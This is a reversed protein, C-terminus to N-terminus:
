GVRPEQYICIGLSPFRLLRIEFRPPAQSNGDKALEGSRNQRNVPNLFRQGATRSFWPVSAGRSSSALSLVTPLIANRLSQPLATERHCRKRFFKTLPVRLAFLAFLPSPLPSVPRVPTGASPLAKSIKQGLHFSQLSESARFIGGTLWSPTWRPDGGGLGTGGLPILWRSVGLSTSCRFTSTFCGVKSNALLGGEGFEVCIQYVPRRTLHAWCAM